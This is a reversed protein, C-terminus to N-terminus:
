NLHVLRRTVEGAGTSVRCFYVGAAKGSLDIRIRYLGAGHPVADLVLQALRGQTDFVRVSVDSASPLSLFVDTRGRFPNPVNASLAVARVAGTTSATRRPPWEERFARYSMYNGPLALQMVLQGDSSVETIEPQGTGWCILTSGNPLRQANGMAAGYIDPVNRYQWVLEATKADQDLVYEAARSFRPTHFNGNDFLLYHGNMLRRIAHQHSFQLTDGVFSFQNNRGGWRWVIAGTNRDIKTIEDMHRASMLLGGDADIELANAHVYDIYGALLNEHTADTIQYHDWSRWEFVVQKDADLEQIIQGLVTTEPNGGPVITSMDVIQTDIGLLLAHGNPLLLLEHPDTEYGNTCAFSDVVAYTSDLAYFKAAALDFYTILGNPQLKFDTTAGERYFVPTGSNDLILMYPTLTGWWPYVSLFLHGPAPTGYLTPTLVPLSAPLDDSVGATPSPGAAAFANTPLISCLAGALLM